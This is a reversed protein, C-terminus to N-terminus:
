EGAHSSEAGDEDRLEQQNDVDDVQVETPIIPVMPEGTEKDVLGTQAPLM